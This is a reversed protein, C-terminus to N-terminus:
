DPSQLPTLQYLPGSLLDVCAKMGVVSLGLRLTWFKEEVEEKRREHEQEESQDEEERRRRRCSCNMIQGRLADTESSTM